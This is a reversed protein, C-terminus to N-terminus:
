RGTFERERSRHKKGHKEQLEQRIEAILTRVSKRKSEDTRTSVKASTESRQSGRGSPLDNTTRAHTPNAPTDKPTGEPTKDQPKEPAQATEPPDQAEDMDIGAYGIRDMVASIKAADESKVLLELRDDNEGPKSKVICYTIGYDKVERAFDKALEKPLHFVTVEKGSKRMTKLHIPGASKNEEKLAVAIVAAINKLGDGSAHIAVEVSNDIIRTVQEVAQTSEDM